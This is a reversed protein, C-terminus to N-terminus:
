KKGAARYEDLHKQIEDKTKGDIALKVAEEARKVALDREGRAFHVRALTDLIQAEQGSTLDNARRAARLALELDRQELEPADAIAWAIANLMEARERYATDVLETAWKYGAAYDKQQFLLIELKKIAAQDFRTPDIAMLQDLAAVVRPIDSAQAAATLDSEVQRIKAATAVAADVDYQGAVVQELVRDLVGPPYVPHGIWAIRGAQDVVFATPIGTQGAAAMYARNTAGAKDWAVHYEMKGGMKEVFPRVDALGNRESSSIGIVTLGQEKFKAQLETLHPISQRCPGCWTAWFEVIYPKGKELAPVPEGKVWTDITIPPAPDGLGLTPKPAPGQATADAPPGALAVFLLLATAIRVIM